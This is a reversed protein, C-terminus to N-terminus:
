KALLRAVDGAHFKYTGCNGKALVPYKRARLNIGVITYTEGRQTFTKGWADRPLGLLEADYAFGAPAGAETTCSFEVKPNFTYESYTGGGVRVTLGHEKAVGELAEVIANRLADRDNRNRMTKM